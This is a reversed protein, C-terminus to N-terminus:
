AGKRASASVTHDKSPEPGAAEGRKMLPSLWREIFSASPGRIEPQAALLIQFLAAHMHECDTLDVSKAGQSLFELLQEAEEVRCRGSLRIVGGEVEVTM